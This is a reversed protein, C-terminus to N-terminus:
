PKNVRRTPDLPTVNTVVTPKDKEITWVHGCVACRFYIAHSSQSVSDIPVGQCQHCNPCEHTLTVLCARPPAGITAALQAFGVRRFFACAGPLYRPKAKKIEAIQM